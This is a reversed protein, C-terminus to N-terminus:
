NEFKKLNEDNSSIKLGWKESIFGGTFTAMTPRPRFM